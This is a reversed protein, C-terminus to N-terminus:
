ARALTPKAQGDRAEKKTLLKLTYMYIQLTEDAAKGTPDYEQATQGVNGAHRHAARLHLTVPCVDFGQGTIFAAADQAEKGQVSSKSVVFAAPVDGALKLLNGIKPLTELSFLHPEMPVLVLDASRAAEVADTGAHPPTDIVLFDVGQAKAADIAAKLRTAPTAVVWPFEPERRDTWQSATAQPDLDLVAVKRGAQVAAVALGLALTTKGVGGKEAV